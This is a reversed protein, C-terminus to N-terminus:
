NKGNTVSYQLMSLGGFKESVSYLTKRWMMRKIWVYVKAMSIYSSIDFM